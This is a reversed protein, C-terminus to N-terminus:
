DGTLAAWSLRKAPTSKRIEGTPWICETQSRSEVLAEHLGTDGLSTTFLMEEIIYTYAYKLTNELSLNM